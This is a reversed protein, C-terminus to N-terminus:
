LRPLHQLMRNLGAPAADVQSQRRLLIRLQSPGSSARALRSLGKHKKSAGTSHKSCPSCVLSSLAPLECLTTKAMRTEAIWASATFSFLTTYIVRGAKTLSADPRMLELLVKPTLTLGTNMVPVLGCLWNLGTNQILPKLIKTRRMAFGRVLAGQSVVLDGASRRTRFRLFSISLRPTGTITFNSLSPLTLVTSRKM